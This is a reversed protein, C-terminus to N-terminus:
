ETRIGVYESGKAIKNHYRPSATKHGSKSFFQAISILIWSWVFTRLLNVLGTRVCFVTIVALPIYKLVKNYDKAMILYSFKCDLWRLYVGYLAVAFYSLHKFDYLLEALYSAGKDSLDLAEYIDIHKTDLGLSSVKPIVCTIDYLLSSGITHPANSELVYGFINLTYGFETMSDFIINFSLMNDISFGQFGTERFERIVNLLLVVMSAVAFGWIKKSTPIKKGFGWNLWVIVIICILPTARQGAFMWLIEYLCYIIVYKSGKTDNGTKALIFVGTILLYSFFSSYYKGEAATVLAEGYGGLMMAKIRIYMFAFDIPLAIAIMLIALVRYNHTRNIVIVTRNKKKITEYFLMGWYVISILVVAYYVMERIDSTDFDKCKYFVQSVYEPGAFQLEIPYSLNFLYTFILVIYSLNFVGGFVKYSFFTQIVLMSIIITNIWALWSNYDFSSIHNCAIIVTFMYLTYCFLFVKKGTRAIKNPVIYEM